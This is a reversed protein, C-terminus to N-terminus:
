ATAANSLRSLEGTVYALVSRYALALVVPTAVLMGGYSGFIAVTGVGKAVALVQMQLFAAAPLTFAAWVPSWGGRTMWPVLALLVVATVNALWYFALFAWDINLLGFCIAFLCNPALFIAVVPRLGMPPLSHMLRGAYGLTIVLYALFAGIAMVQSQWIYGLSIGAVPGVMPGVFSLYQFPTFHRTDPRDHMLAYLVTASAAIQMVVGLWWIQPASVGLPLLAAALVMMSMAAAAVGARAGPNHMDELLVAPRMALKLLYLLLFWVFYAAGLALLIGGIEEAVPLVDAANRWGLGLGLLGLCIPFIAPPTRRCLSNVRFM